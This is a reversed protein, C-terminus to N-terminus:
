IFDLLMKGTTEDTILTNILGGNIIAHISEVKDKGGCVGIVKPIKALDALSISMVRENWLCDVLAGNEDIFNYCIDGVIDEREIDKALESTKESLYAKTMTSYVPLGGVGVIAIDVQRAQEFVKKIFSQEMFVKKAELSDVTIPAHLEVANARGNKAFIQCVVNAQIDSHQQGLGGVLPIFTVNDSKTKSFFNEAAEHVTTGASVGITQNPQIIRSLYKAATTGLKKKLREEETPAVCIVEELNYKRKIKDEIHKYPHIMEDHIIIEVLGIERAKTLYKSVLSRSINFEKAIDSQKAGDEYYRTAINALLRMDQSYSMTNKRENDRSCSWNGKGAFLM